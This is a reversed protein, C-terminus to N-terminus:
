GAQWIVDPLIDGAVISSYVLLNIAQVLAVGKLRKNLDIIKTEREKCFLKWSSVRYLTVNAGTTSGAVCMIAPSHYLNVPVVAEDSCPKAFNM